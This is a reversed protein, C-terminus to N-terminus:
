NSDEAYIFRFWMTDGALNYEVTITDGKKCPIIFRPYQGSAIVNGGVSMNATTNEIFGWQNAATAKKSFYFWGNAPATYTGGSALLTLDQYTESPFGWGGDLDVKNNFLSSNLGATQETASQSFQGVYFYLYMQTAREQVHAGNKYISSSYSADFYLDSQKATSASEGTIRYGSTTSHSNTPKFVGTASSMYLYSDSKGKINITGTLNPLAEQILNGVTDRLGEFGYKTRPLKFRQNAKDLIYYWAIGTESYINSVTTEDTTIKHGDNALVYAITYSGITETSINVSTSTYGDDTLVVITTGKTSVGFVDSGSRHLNSKQVAATWTLGDDSTSIYGNESFAVFKSGDYCINNFWSVTLEAKVTPTTWVSGNTSTSVYGYGSIAVFKTEKFAIGMFNYESSSLDGEYNWTSGDESTYIYCTSPSLSITVFMGNGYVVRGFGPKEATAGFTAQSWTTGDLSTSFYGDGSTAVLLGNGYCIGVWTSSASLESITTAASWTIGDTSTSIKGDLSIAVFKEGDYAIDRWNNSGLNVNEALPLFELTPTAPANDYDDVLHQYAESYVTGDQWSFTDARLWSQDTLIHDTWKFDFLDHANLITNTAVGSLLQTGLYVSM